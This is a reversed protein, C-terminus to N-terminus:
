DMFLSQGMDHLSIMSHSIFSSSSTFAWLSRRERERSEAIVIEEREQLDKPDLKYSSFLGELCM